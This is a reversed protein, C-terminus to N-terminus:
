AIQLISLQVEQVRPDGADNNGYLKILTNATVTIIGGTVMQFTTFQTSGAGKGRIWHAPESGGVTAYFTMASNAVNAIGVAKAMVWFTGAIDIDVEENGPTHTFSGSNHEESDLQLLTDTGIDITTTDYWDGYALSPTNAGWVADTGDSKLITGNAGLAYRVWNTGNHRLIDGRVSSAPALNDFAATRDSAGTGGNAVTLDAGSWDDNNVTGKVALAGLGLTTRMTAADADDLLTKAFATLNASIWDLESNWAQVTSGIDNNDLVAVNNRYLTAFNGSGAGKNGGTVGETHFSVAQFKDDVKFQDNAEDWLFSKDASTGRNFLLGVDETPAGTVDSNLELINDHYQVTTSEVTQDDGRFVVPLQFIAQGNEFRLVEVGGVIASLDGSGTVGLGTGTQSKDPRINPVTASSTIDLIAPGNANSGEIRDQIELYKTFSVRDASTGASILSFFTTDAGQNSRAGFDMQGTVGKVFVYDNPDTVKATGFFGLMADAADKNIELLDDFSKKNITITRRTWLGLSPSDDAKFTDKDDAAAVSTASWEFLGGMEDDVANELVFVREGDTLNAFELAKLEAINNLIVAFRVPTPDNMEGNSGLFMGIEFPFVISVVHQNSSLSIKAGSNSSDIITTRELTSTGSYKYFGVEWEDGDVLQCPLLTNPGPSFQSSSQFARFGDVPQDLTLDEANEGSCKEAVMNDFYLRAM